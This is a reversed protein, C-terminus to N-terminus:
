SINCFLLVLLPFIQFGYLSSAVNRQLFVIASPSLYHFFFDLNTVMYQVYYYAQVLVAAVAAYVTWAHHTLNRFLEWIMGALWKGGKLFGLISTIMYIAALIRCFTSFHIELFIMPIAIIQCIAFMLLYGTIICEALRDDHRKWFSLVLTGALSPVVGFWLIIGIIMKWM